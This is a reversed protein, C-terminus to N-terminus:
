CSCPSIRGESEALTRKADLCRNDGDGTMRCLVTVARRMSALARCPSSCRNEDAKPTGGKRPPAPRSTPEAAPPAPESSPRATTGPARAFAGPQDQIPTAASALVLQDRARSIQEQAEEVTAPETELDRSEHVDRTQPAKAESGGCAAIATTMSLLTFPAVRVSWLSRRAFPTM